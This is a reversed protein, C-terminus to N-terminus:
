KFLEVPADPRSEPIVATGFDFVTWTGNAKKMYCSAVDTSKDEPQLDVRAWNNIIKFDIVKLEPLDPNKKQAYAIAAQKVAKVEESEAPQEPRTEVPPETVKPTTDAVEDPPTTPQTKEQASESKTKQWCGALTLSVLLLLAIVVTCAITKTTRM